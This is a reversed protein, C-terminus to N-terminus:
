RARYFDTNGFAGSLLCGTEDRPADLIAAGGAHGPMTWGGEGGEPSEMKTVCGVLWVSGLCCLELRQACQLIWGGGIKPVTQKSVRLEQEEKGM